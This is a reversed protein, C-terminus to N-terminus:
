PLQKADLMRGILTNLSPWVVLDDFEGGPSSGSAPLHSVFYKDGDVNHSEHSGSAIGQASNKGRSLVVFPATDTLAAGDVCGTGSGPAGIVGKSCVVLLPTSALCSIAVKKIGNATTLVDNQSAACAGGINVNLQAVAYMLRGSKGGWSDIAFGAEDVPSVGITAAPLYGLRVTCVGTGVLSEKGGSDATGYTVGDTAPCPLRGYVSAYGILADRATALQKETEVIRRLEIQAVLPIALAALLISIIVLVIAIEILSFALQSDRASKSPSRQLM